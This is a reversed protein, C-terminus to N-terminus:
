KLDIQNEIKDQRLHWQHNMQMKIDLSLKPDKSQTQILSQTKKTILM